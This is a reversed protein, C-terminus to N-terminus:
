GDCAFQRTEPATGGRVRAGLRRRPARAPSPPRLARASTSPPSPPQADDVTPWKGSPDGTSGSRARGAVDAVHGKPAERALPAPRGRAFADHLPAPRQPSTVSPYSETQRRDGLGEAQQAPRDLDDASKPLPVQRLRTQAPEVPAAATPVADGQGWGRGGVGVVGGGTVVDSGSLSTVAVMASFWSFALSTGTASGVCGTTRISTPREDDGIVDLARTTEIGIHEAAPQDEALARCLRM